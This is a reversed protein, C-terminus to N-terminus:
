LGELLPVLNYLSHVVALPAVHGKEPAYSRQRDMFVASIGALAPGEVDERYSDGICLAKDPEVGCTHLIKEYFRRDPKYIKLEESSFIGDAKIGSRRIDERLPRADSVSGIVVTYKRKLRELIEAAGEFAKRRGLTALMLEADGSRKRDIGHRTYLVSLDKRFIEEETLFRSRNAEAIHQRHLEKWEGYFLEPDAKCEALELIRRVADLSGTGTSILTGYADFIILKKM